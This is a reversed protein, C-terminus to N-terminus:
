NRVVLPLYIGTPLSPEKDALVFTGTQCVPVALIDDQPFRQVDYNPCTAVEWGSTDLRYLTLNTEDMGAIDGDAYTLIMVAPPHDTDPQFSYDQEPTDWDLEGIYALLEFAKGAIGSVVVAADQFDFRTNEALNGVPVYLSVQMTPNLGYTIPYYVKESAEGMDVFDLAGLSLMGFGKNNNVYPDTEDHVEALQNTRDIVAYIRQDGSGTANWHLTVTKVARPTLAYAGITQPSGIQTGGADPDGLYFTIDFAKTNSQMSFNRVTATLTVLEGASVVPPDILIDRTFAETNPDEATNCQGDAWPLTFAPDPKDYKTWFTGETSTTYDLMLYGDKTWYLYPWVAYDYGATDGGPVGNLYGYVETSDTTTMEWEALQSYNYEAKSSFKFSPLRTSFGIGEIEFSLQEGGIQWEFENSIGLEFGSAQKTEEVDTFKVTFSSPDDSVLYDSSSVLDGNGLQDRDVLQDASSPYSWVNDLQHRPQYWSDCTNGRDVRLRPESAPYVVSIYDAATGTPDAIVPYEWVDYDTRIYFLADDASADRSQKIEFTTESGTEKSFNEGYSTTLSDTTHSAEPDGLTASFTSSLGWDRKTTLSVHTTTGEGLTLQAKTAPDDANINYEVGNLVDTHKPPANIIATVRGVSYQRRYNPPGVRLSDGTFDGTVLNPYWVFSMPAGLYEWYPDGGEPIVYDYRGLVRLDDWGIHWILEGKLDRDLDGVVLRDVYSNQTYGMAVPSNLLKWKDLDIQLNEDIDWNNTFEDPNTALQFIQLVRRFQNNKPYQGVYCYLYETNFDYPWTRIIEDKGDGDVDGASLALGVSLPDAKRKAERRDSEEFYYTKLEYSGEVTNKLIDIIRTRAHYRYTWCEPVTSTVYDECYLLGTMAIEDQGDADFDGSVVELTGAFWMSNDDDWCKTGDTEPTGEIAIGPQEGSLRLIDVGYSQAQVYALAVEDIGDNDLFDGTAIKFWTADHPIEVEAIQNPIFGGVTQFLAVKVAGPADAYALAIQPRGDGLFYGTEIDVSYDEFPYVDKLAGQLVNSEIACCPNLGGLSTWVLGDGNQLSGDEAQAIINGAAVAVGSTLQGGLSVWTGWTDGDFSLKWLQNDSGRVYIDIQGPAPSIATPAAAITVGEDMGVLELRQWASWNGSDYTLYWLAEDVGRAFVQMQDAGSSVAGPGSALMGGLTQWTTGDHWRLTNDPGVRFLDFGGDRAVVALPPLEPTPGTWSSITHPWEAYQLWDASWGGDWHRQYIQNDTSIMFVDFQGDVQSAVAPASLWTGGAANDWNGWTSGDFHQHWLAEDYGRVLLDISGDSHSVAAPASTTRGLSGPMEGISLTISLTTSDMWAVIQESQGDNNLDGAAIDMSRYNDLITESGPIISLTSTFTQVSQQNFQNWSMMLKDMNVLTYNGAFPDLGDAAMADVGNIEVLEQVGVENERLVQTTYSGARSLHGPEHHPIPKDPKPWGPMSSGDIDTQMVPSAIENQQNKQAAESQLAGLGPQFVLGFLVLLVFIKALLRTKM